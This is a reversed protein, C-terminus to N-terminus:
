ARAAQRACKLVIQEPSQVKFANSCAPKNARKKRIPMTPITAPPVSPGSHVTMPPFAFSPVSISASSPPMMPIMPPFGVGPMSMPPLGLSMGPLMGPLMGMPRMPPMGISGMPMPAGFSPMLPFGMPIHSSLMIPRRGGRGRRRNKPLKAGYRNPVRFKMKLMARGVPMRGGRVGLGEKEEDDKKSKKANRRESRLM